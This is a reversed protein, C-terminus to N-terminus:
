SIAEALAACVRDVDEPALEPFLPLTLIEGALRESVPLSGAGWGLFAYAPMRHIPVPYHVATAIGARDLSARVADREVGGPLRVVYLHPAPESGAPAAFTAVSEPLRAAYRDALARRKGLWGPLHPLKASLIAAQLADLRANVGERRAAGDVLGYGRVSRMAEALAADRSACLGADGYAGLNKTPYFSFAAADGLAGVPVGGVRAGTAQACDELVAVERGGLRARLAPVDVPNGYLHVPVVAKTAATLADPLLDLDMLASSEVVDCFVPTAGVARIAAVTAVATNAVTVVEDGPGVGLARLAVELAATGSAVGVGHVDPGLTAAFDREFAEVEPGLIVRGSALVRAVAADVEGRVGALQATLDFTPVRSM